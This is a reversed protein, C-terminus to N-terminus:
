KTAKIIGYYEALHQGVGDIEGPHMSVAGVFNARLGGPPISVVILFRGYYLAPNILDEDASVVPAEGVTKGIISARSGFGFVVYNGTVSLGMKSNAHAADLRAVVTDKAVATPATVLAKYPNFTPADPTATTMDHINNIGLANLSAAENATLGSATIFGGVPTVGGDESPLYSVLKTGDTLSDWGDPFALNLQEYTQIWKTIEQMNTAGAATHTRGLMSPLLPVVIGALGVLIVLVVILEILTLGSRQRKM